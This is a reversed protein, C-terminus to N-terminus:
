TGVKMKRIKLSFYYVCMAKFSLLLVLSVICIATGQVLEKWIELETGRLFGSALRNSIEERLFTNKYRIKFYISMTIEWSKVKIM